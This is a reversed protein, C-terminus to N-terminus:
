VLDAVSPLKSIKVETNQAEDDAAQAHSLLSFFLGGFFGLCAAALLAASDHSFGADNGRKETNQSIQELKIGKSEGKYIGARVDDKSGSESDEAKWM